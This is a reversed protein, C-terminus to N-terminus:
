KGTVIFRCKVDQVLRYDEFHEHGLQSGHSELQQAAHLLFEALSRLGEPGDQITVEELERPAEADAGKIYGYCRM